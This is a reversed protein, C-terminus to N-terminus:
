RRRVGEEDPAPEIPLRTPEEPIPLCRHPEVGCDVGDLSYVGADEDTLRPEGDFTVFGRGVASLSIGNGRAVIRYGGGVMRFRLGFGRYLVTRPGLQEETLRRGNVIAEYRDRPTADTVRLSGAGLRGLVSGRIELVVVGKAHEVSLEGANPSVGGASAVVAGAALISALFSVLSRM